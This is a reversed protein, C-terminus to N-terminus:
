SKSFRGQRLFHATQRAVEASFLLGTHSHRLSLWDSAGPLKTEELQVVGDHPRELHLGLLPGVGIPRTAALSGLPYQAPWPPADGLLGLELSNGLMWTWGRQQLQRAAASGLHPTGLTVLRGANAPPATHFLWRLLLGGLSHAVFHITQAPQAAVFQRLHRLNAERTGMVSRYSFRVCPWGQNQLRRQLLWLELGPMWIGHVLVVLEPTLM